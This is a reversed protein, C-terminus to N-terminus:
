RRSSLPFCAAQKSKGASADQCPLLCASAGSVFILVTSQWMDQNDQLADIVLQIGGDMETYMAGAVQLM